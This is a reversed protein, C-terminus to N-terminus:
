AYFSRHPTRHKCLLQIDLRRPSGFVLQRWRQCVHVLRHWDWAVTFTFWGADHGERCLDFIELLVNDPLTNIYGKGQAQAEELNECLTRTINEVEQGRHPDDSESTTSTFSDNPRSPPDSSPDGISSGSEIFNLSSVSHALQLTAPSSMPSIQLHPFRPPFQGRPAALSAWICGFLRWVSQCPFIKWSGPGTCQIRSTKTPLINCRDFTRHESGLGVSGM